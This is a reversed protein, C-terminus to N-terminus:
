FVFDTVGLKSTLGQVLIAMEAASDSDRNFELLLNGNSVTQRIEGASFSGNTDLAFAQNDSRGTNADINSLVLDDYGRAFDNIVDRAGPNSDSVARFVFDDSGAGGKIVNAGKNGTLVNAASNGALDTNAVGLLLGDKANTGLALDTSSALIRGNIVDLKVNTGTMGLSAKMTTAGVDISVEATGTLGTPVRVAYGGASATSVAAGSNSLWDITIGSKGEGIDYFRDDDKDSFAVGTIFAETGTKALNQTIMSANHTVGRFTFGGLEQAIGVERFDGLTNV